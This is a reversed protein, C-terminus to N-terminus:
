PPGVSLSTALTVLGASAMIQVNRPRSVATTNITFSASSAGAPVTVSAPVTAANSSSSLQVVLGAAPAPASLSIRGTVANGGVVGARLSLDALEAAAPPSNVAHVAADGILSGVGQAQCNGYAMADYPAIALGDLKLGSFAARAYPLAGCDPLDRFFETFTAFGSNLKVDQDIVIRGISTEPGNAATFSLRWGNSGDKAFKFRYPVGEQWDIPLRVSYGTGEGGFTEASAGPGPEASKANWISFIFMKGVLKNQAIGGTQIGFYGNRDGNATLFFQQAWFYSSSDPPAHEITITVEMASGVAGGYSHSAVLGGPVVAHAPRSIAAAVLLLLLSCANLLSRASVHIWQRPFIASHM